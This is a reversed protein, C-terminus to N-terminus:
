RKLIEVIKAIHAGISNEPPDGTSPPIQAFIDAPASSTRATNAEREAKRKERQQRAFMDRSVINDAGRKADAYQRDKKLLHGTGALRCLRDLNLRRVGAESRFSENEEKFIRIQKTPFCWGLSVMVVLARRARRVAAATQMGFALQSLDQITYRKWPGGGERPKGVYGTRVDALYLLAVALALLSSAGDTRM